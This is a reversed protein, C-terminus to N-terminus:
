GMEFDSEPSRPRTGSLVRGVNKYAQARKAQMEDARRNHEEAPLGLEVLDDAFKVAADDIKRRAERELFNARMELGSALTELKAQREDQQAQREDQAKERADAKAERESVAKERAELERAKDALWKGKSRTKKHPILPEREVSIGCEECIDLFAARAEKDFTMKRNNRQGQRKDPNPLEVGAQELAKEQGPHRKGDEDTYTWYRRIQMHPTAEDFHLAADLVVFPTGHANSWETQWRLFKNMAEIFQKKTAHEAVDGIQLCTEEPCTRKQRIWEDFSKMRSTQRRERYREQQEEYHEGVLSYLAKREVEAFTMDDDGHRYSHTRLCHWYVNDKTRTADINASSDLDFSRDNHRPNFAQGSAHVRGNHLTARM